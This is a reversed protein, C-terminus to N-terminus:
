ENLKADKVVPGKQLNSVGVAFEREIHSFYPQLGVTDQCTFQVILLTFVVFTPQTEYHHMVANM